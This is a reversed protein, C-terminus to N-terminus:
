PNGNSSNGDSSNGRGEPRPSIIEFGYKEIFEEYEEEFTKKAHHAEQNKIYERVKNVGSQSV